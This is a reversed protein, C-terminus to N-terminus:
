PAPQPAHPTPPHDAPRRGLSPPAAGPRQTFFPCQGRGTSNDVARAGFTLSRVFQPSHPLSGTVFPLGFMPGIANFIAMLLFSSHLYSGRSLKMEPLQCLLSSINQDM